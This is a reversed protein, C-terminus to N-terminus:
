RLAAGSGASATLAAPPLALMLLSLAPWAPDPCLTFSARPWQRVCGPSHQKLSPASPESLPRPRRPLAWQCASPAIVSLTSWDLVRQLLVLQLLLPLAEGSISSVAGVTSTNKKATAVSVRIPRNSILHGAMEGLARDREPESGFRVFGYGKSRGTVPDTIVQLCLFSLPKAWGSLRFTSLHAADAPPADCVLGRARQRLARLRLGQQARHSPRHDGACSMLLTLSGADHLRNVAEQSASTAVEQARDRVPESGFRVFGRSRGTVPDTIVQLCLHTLSKAWGSLSFTSLRAADAPPADCLPERASQREPESGFRVFCCGKSRGMVPITIVQM